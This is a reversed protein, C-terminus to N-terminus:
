KLEYNNVLVVSVRKLTFIILHVLDPKEKWMHGTELVIVADVQKFLYDFIVGRYM